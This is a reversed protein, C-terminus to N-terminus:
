AQPAPAEPIAAATKLEASATNLRDAFGQLQAPTVGGSGGDKILKAIEVSVDHMVSVADAVASTLNDLELM